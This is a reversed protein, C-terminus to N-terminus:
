SRKVFSAWGGARVANYVAYREWIPVQSFKQCELLEEDAELRTIPIRACRYRFDHLVFEAKYPDILWRVIWPISGFDTEFGKPIITKIGGHTHIIAELLRWNRGGLHEVKITSAWHESM